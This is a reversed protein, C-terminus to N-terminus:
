LNEEREELLAKLLLGKPDTIPSKKLFQSPAKGSKGLEIIGERALGLRRSKNPLSNQFPVLIAVPHGRDTVIIEQGKKVKALYESFCAKIESVGASPM